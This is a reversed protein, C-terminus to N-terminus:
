TDRATTRGTAVDFESLAPVLMATTAFGFTLVTMLFVTTYHGLLFSTIAIFTTIPAAISALFIASSPNRWGLVAFLAVGGGLMFGLFSVLQNEFSDSLALMMRMCTSVGLFLFLLTGLSAAIAHRSNPYIMGAHLGLMAAFANVVLLGVALFWLNETTLGGSWWLFGCLLLPLFIMEKANYAVGGLKGFILERPTLDTALLLDLAKADRENTLSTVSLAGVLVVSVALMPALAAAAPPIASRGGTGSGDAAFTGAAAVAFIVLYAFKIVLIKKGYAWT